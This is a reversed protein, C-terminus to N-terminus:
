NQHASKKNFANFWIPGSFFLRSDQKCLPFTPQLLSIEAQLKGKM